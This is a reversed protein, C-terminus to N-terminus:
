RDNPAYCVVLWGQAKGTGSNIGLTQDPATFLWPESTRAIPLVLGGNTAIGLTGSLAADSSSENTGQLFQLTGAADLTVVGGLIKVYHLSRSPAIRTYGAATQQIPVIFPAEYRRHTPIRSPEIHSPMEWVQDEPNLHRTDDRYTLESFAEQEEGEIANVAEVNPVGTPPVYVYETQDHKLDTM